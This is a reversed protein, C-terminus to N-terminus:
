RETTWSQWLRLRAACSPSLWETRCAAPCEAPHPSTPQPARAWRVVTTTAGHTCRVCRLNLRSLYLLRKFLRPHPSPANPLFFFSPLSFNRFTLRTRRHTGILETVAATKGTTRRSSLKMQGQFCSVSQVSVEGSDTLAMSHHSGCAVETVKKNLLNASVLVPAVGQNTTGNGLQSYGNHGWTFLEGDSYFVPREAAGLRSRIWIYFPFVPM